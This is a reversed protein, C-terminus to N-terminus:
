PMAVLIGLAHHDSGFRDLLEVDATIEATSMVHDLPLGPWFAADKFTLRFGPALRARAAIAIRDVSSGWPAMNFDGAVVFPIDLQGAIKLDAVARIPRMLSNVHDVQGHPWPWALHITAVSLLKREGLDLTAWAFGKGRECGPEQWFPHRSLLAVGGVSSFPCYITHPYDEALMELIVNNGETVEQLTVFDADYDAIAAAVADMDGNDFRLNHQFGRVNPEEGTGTELVFPVIGVAVLLIGAFSLTAAVRAVMFISMVMLAAFVLAFQLRLAGITDFAPHASGFFGVILVLIILTVILALAGRIADM